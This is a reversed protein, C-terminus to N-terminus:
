KSVAARFDIANGSLTCSAAFVNTFTSHSDRSSLRATCRTAFRRHLGVRDFPMLQVFLVATLENVPDVWFLTSTTTCPASSRDWNGRWVAREPELLREERRHRM